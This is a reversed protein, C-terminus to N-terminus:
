ASYRKYEILVEVNTKIEFYDRISTRLHKIDEMGFIKGKNNTFFIFTPINEGAKQAGYAIYKFLRGRKEDSKSDIIFKNVDKTKIKVKKADNIEVSLDILKNLNKNTKSSIFIFPTESFEKLWLKIDKKLESVQINEDRLDWKTFAIIFPKKELNIMKLLSLDEHTIGATIDIFAIIVDARKIQNLSQKQFGESYIDLKSKKRIGSTDIVTIVRNKYKLYTDISDRTTGPKEDTFLLDEKIISNIFTSKGSNPRGVIAIKLSSEYFDGSPKNSDKIEKVVQELLDDIGFGNEASIAIVKKIGLSSFEAYANEVNKLSDVKNIVLIIIGGSGEPPPAINKLLYLYIEKDEPIMGSKFDVVFLIVKAKKAYNFVRERIKKELSRLEFPTEDSPRLNFGGSDSILFNVGDYSAPKINLDLTTGSVKSTLAHSGGLIKNFITSKGANPRGILIVLSDNNKIM